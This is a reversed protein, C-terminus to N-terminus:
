TEETEELEEEDGEDDRLVERADSLAVLKHTKIVEIVLGLKEARRGLKAKYASGTQNAWAEALYHISIGPDSLDPIVPYRLGDDTRYERADQLIYAAFDINQPKQISM